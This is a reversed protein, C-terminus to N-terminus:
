QPYEVAVPKVFVIIRQIVFYEDIVNVSGGLRMRQTQFNALTTPEFRTTVAMSLPVLTQTQVNDLSTLALDLNGVGTVRQRIGVCHWEYEASKDLGKAVLSGRKGDHTQFRLM